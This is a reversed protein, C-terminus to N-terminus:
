SVYIIIEQEIAGDNNNKYCVINKFHKSKEDYMFKCQLLEYVFNGNEFFLADKLDKFNYFKPINLLDRLYHVGIKDNYAISFYQKEKCLAENLKNSQEVMNAIQKLTYKMKMATGRVKTIILRVYKSKYTLVKKFKKSLIYGTMGKEQNTGSKTM